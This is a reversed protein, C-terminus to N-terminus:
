AFRKRSRKSGHRYTALSATRTELRSGGLSRSRQMERSCEDRATLYRFSSAKGHKDSVSPGVRKVAEVSCPVLLFM